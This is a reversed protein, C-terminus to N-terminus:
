IRAGVPIRKVWSHDREATLQYTAMITRGPNRPLIVWDIVTGVPWTARVYDIIMQADLAKVLEGTDSGNKFARLEFLGGVKRVILRNSRPPDHRQPIRSTNSLTLTRVEVETPREGGYELLLPYSKM